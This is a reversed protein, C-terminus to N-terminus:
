VVQAGVAVYDRSPPALSLPKQPDGGFNCQIRAGGCGSIAPFLGCGVQSSPRLGSAFVVRWAPSSDGGFAYAARLSGAELDAALGLISGQVFRGAAVEASPSHRDDAMPSRVAGGDTLNSNEQRHWGIVQNAGIVQNYVGWSIEDDGVCDAAFNTGAFGATFHGVAECVEVEFYVRGSSICLHGAGISEKYQGSYRFYLWAETLSACSSHRCCSLFSRNFKISGDSGFALQWFAVDSLRVM